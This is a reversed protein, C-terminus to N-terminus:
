IARLATLNQEMIRPKSAPFAGPRPCAPNVFPSASPVKRLAIVRNMAARMAQLRTEIRGRTMAILAAFRPTPKDLLTCM